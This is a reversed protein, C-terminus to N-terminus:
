IKRMYLPMKEHIYWPLQKTLWIHWYDSRCLPWRIIAASRRSCCMKINGLVWLALVVRYIKYFYISSDHSKLFLSEDAFVLDNVAKEVM